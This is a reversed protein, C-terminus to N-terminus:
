FMQFFISFKGFLLFLSCIPNPNFKKFFLVKKFILLTRKLIIIKILLFNNNDLIPTKILLFNNNNLIPTKILYFNKNHDLIITKILLFNNNNNNSIFTKILLFNNKMFLFYKNHQIPTKTLLFEKNNYGM